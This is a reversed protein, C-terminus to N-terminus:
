LPTTVQRKVVFAQGVDGYIVVYGKKEAEELLDPLNRQAESITYTKM